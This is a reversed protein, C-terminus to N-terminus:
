KKVPIQKPKEPLTTLCHECICGNFSPSPLREFFKKFQPENCWCKESDIAFFKCDFNSNCKACKKNM